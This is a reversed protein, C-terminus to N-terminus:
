IICINKMGIVRGAQRAFTLMYSAYLSSGNDERTFIVEM